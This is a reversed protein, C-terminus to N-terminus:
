WDSRFSSVIDQALRQVAEHQAVSFPEGVGRAPLYRGVAEFGQRQKLVAGTRAQRWEFDITIRVEMEESLGGERTTSLTRQSVSVVTGRVITDAGAEAVVKYPTRSEIEKVLAETLDFEVGRYFTRNALIPVAVTRYERPFLQKSSYGCGAPLLLCLVWMVGAMVGSLLKNGRQTKV